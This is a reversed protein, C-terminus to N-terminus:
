GRYSYTSEGIGIKFLIMQKIKIWNHNKSNKPMMDLCSFVLQLHKSILSHLDVADLNSKFIEDISKIRGYEEIFMSYKKNKLLDLVRTIKNKEEQIMEHMYEDIVGKSNDSSDLINKTSKLIKGLENIISLVEKKNTMTTNIFEKLDFITKDIHTNSTNGLDTIIPKIEAFYKKLNKEAEKKDRNARMQVLNTIILTVIIGILLYSIDNIKQVNSDDDHTKLSLNTKDLADYIKDLKTGIEKCNDTVNQECANLNFEFKVLEDYVFTANVQQNSENTNNKGIDGYVPLICM